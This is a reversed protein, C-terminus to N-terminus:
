YIFICNMKTYEDLIRLAPWAWYNAKPSNIKCIKRPNGVYVMMGNPFPTTNKGKWNIDRTDSKLSKNCHGSREMNFLLSLWFEQRTGLRLPFANLRKGNIIVNTTSKKTLYEKYPQLHDSRNRSCYCSNKLILFIATSNQWISKQALQYPWVLNKKKLRHLYPSNYQNINSYRALRAYRSYILDWKKM